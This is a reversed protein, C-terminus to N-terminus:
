MKKLVSALNGPLPSDFTVSERKDPHHMSLRGAHLFMRKLGLNRMKQNFERDGFKKDGAIPHEIQQAHRRAQHTRGTYLVINVLTSNEFVRSPTFKSKSAYFKQSHNSPKALHKGANRGALASEVTLSEDKFQGKLLATYQKVLTGSGKEQRWLAHLQRLFLQDKALVLIGSTDKDLRHALEIFKLDQREQRIAEIIGISHRSGAHVTIGAPKDIVIMFEDEFIIRNVAKGLEPSPNPASKKSVQFVPPIRVTDGINLRQRAKARSSNVRVQGTRILKYIRSHPIDPLVSILYNDLRRGESVKDISVSTAPKNLNMM